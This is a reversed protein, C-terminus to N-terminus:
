ATRRRDFLSYCSPGASNCGRISRTIRIGHYMPNGFKGSGETGGERHVVCPLPPMRPLARRPAAHSPLSGALTLQVRCALRSAVDRIFEHAYGADRLGVMWSIMLKTDADIATWTWTDGIGFESKREAPVNKQKMEVFAWIEDCQVRKAAVNVVREDHFKQCAKGLDVLLKLITPKSIGTMRVTSNISNGEVLAAVM